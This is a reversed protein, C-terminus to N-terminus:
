LAKERAVILWFQAFPTSGDAGRQRKYHGSDNFAL